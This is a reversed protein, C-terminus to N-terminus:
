GRGTAKRMTDKAADKTKGVVQQGEGKTEQVAGDTETKRNGTMRGFAQKAKGVAENAMGKVKDKTGSMTESRAHIAHQQFAARSRGCGQRFGAARGPFRRGCLWPEAAVRAANARRFQAHRRLRRSGKDRDFRKRTDGSMDDGAV